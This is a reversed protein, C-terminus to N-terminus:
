SILFPEFDFARLPNAPYRLDRDYIGFGVPLRSQLYRRQAFVKCRGCAEAVPPFKILPCVYTWSMWSRPFLPTPQGNHSFGLSRWIPTGRHHHPHHDRPSRLKRFNSQGPNLVCLLLERWLAAALCVRGVAAVSSPMSCRRTVTYNNSRSIEWTSRHKQHPHRRDIAQQLSCRWRGSLLLPTASLAIM